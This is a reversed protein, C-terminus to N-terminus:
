HPFPPSVEGCIDMYHAGSEICAEVIDKGLFRYPGTCNLVLKSTAFTEILKQKETADVVLLDPMLEALGSKLLIEKVSQLKAESRGAIAWKFTQKPISNHLKSVFELLYKSVFTGTFGSAGYVILEHIRSSM